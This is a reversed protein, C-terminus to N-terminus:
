NPIPIPLPIADACCLAGGGTPDTLYIINAENYGTCNPCTWGGSLSGCCNGSAETLPACAQNGAQNGGMNGCGYDDNTEADVQQCGGTCSSSNCGEGTAQGTACVNCGTSSQRTIFFMTGANGIDGCTKNAPLSAAVDGSGKCVHWGVACLDEVDCNNGAPNAGSNGAGRNCSPAAFPIVGPVSFGGACAAIKPFTAADIFGERSGDACGLAATCVKATCQV